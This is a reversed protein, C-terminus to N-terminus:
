LAGGGAFLYHEAIPGLAVAPLYQLLTLIVVVGLLFGVFLAGHTPQTGASAEVRKKAALSGAIALIPVAHALRDLIMALLSVAFAFAMLGITQPVKLYKHNIFAGIASLTLVAAIIDFPTM